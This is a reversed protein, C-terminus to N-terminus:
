SQAPRTTLGGAVTAWISAPVGAEQWYLSAAATHMRGTELWLASEALLLTSGAACVGAGIVATAWGTMEGIPKM